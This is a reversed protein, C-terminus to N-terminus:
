YIFSEIEAELRQVCAYGEAITEKARHFELLSVDGVRPNFVLEPPDGAMRSRTIKDQMINISRAMIDIVGPPQPAQEQNKNLSLRTSYGKLSTAMSNVLSGSSANTNPKNESVAPLTESPADKAPTKPTKKGPVGNLNVAFIVDAGLARCLSVPVPNVLGGDILWEDEYLFPPFLGPLAMSAWVADMALGNTFWRERGHELTTAVTAFRHNLDAIALQDSCVYENFYSMLKEKRLVGNLSLNLEFFGVLDIKTLSTAWEELKALNDAAYAAGVVAGMSCGCVIQPHIGMEALAKLVGIHSWGRASGSGLAIGIRPKRKKIM